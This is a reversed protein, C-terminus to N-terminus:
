LGEDIVIDAFDSEDGTISVDDALKHDLCPGNMTKCMDVSFPDNQGPRTDAKHIEWILVHYGDKLPKGIDCWLISGGLSVYGTDVSADQTCVDNRSDNVDNHWANPSAEYSPPFPDLKMDAPCGCAVTGGNADEVSIKDIDAGPTNKTADDPPNKDIIRIVTWTESVTTDQVVTDGTGHFTDTKADSGKDLECAGFLALVLTLIALPALIKLRM